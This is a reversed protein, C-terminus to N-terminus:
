RDGCRRRPVPRWAGRILPTAMQQRIASRSTDMTTTLKPLVCAATDTSSGTRFPAFGCLDAFIIRTQQPHNRYPAITALKARHRFCRPHPNASDGYADREGSRQDRLPTALRHCAVDRLDTQMANAMMRRRSSRVPLGTRRLASLSFGPYGHGDASRSPWRRRATSRSRISQGDAATGTARRRRSDSTGRRRPARSPARERDAIRAMRANSEHEVPQDDCPRQELDGPHEHQSAHEFGVRVLRNANASASAYGTESMAITVTATSTRALARVPLARRQRHQGDTDDEHRERVAREGVECRLPM